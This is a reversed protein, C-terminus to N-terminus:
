AKKKSVVRAPPHVAKVANAKKAPATKQKQQQHAKEQSTPQDQTEPQQPAKATLDLSPAGAAPNQQDVV